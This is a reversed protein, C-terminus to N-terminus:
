ERNRAREEKPHGVIALSPFVEDSTLQNGYLNRIKRAYVRLESPVQGGEMVMAEITRSCALHLHMDSTQAAHARAARIVSLAEKQWYRM